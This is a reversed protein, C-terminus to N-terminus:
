PKETFLNEESLIGNETVVGTVLELPTIDFAPNSIKVNSPLVGPELLGEAGGDELNIEDSKASLDFKLSECLVYFPVNNDKCALALQYTGAGNIVKGDACIRDAGVMVKDAGSIFLGAATDDIYIVPIGSESLAAAAREGHRGPGSKTVIVEIGKRIESIEKLAALVTSSYSHTLIREGDKVLDAINRVINNVAELSESFLEDARSVAKKRVSDLEEEANNRITDRLFRTIINPIPAMTRRAAILRKGVEKQELLFDKVNEAGSKEAATKMVTVAQRALEGAGDTRNNEIDQILATIEENIEM